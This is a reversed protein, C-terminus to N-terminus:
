ANAAEKAELAAHFESMRVREWMRVQVYDSRTDGVVATAKLEYPWVLWVAGDIEHLAPTDFASGNWRHAPMGPLDTRVDAPPKAEDIRRAIAKGAKLGLRPVLRTASGKGQRRWGEPIPDGPKFEVGTIHRHGLTTAVLLDRGVFGLDTLLAATREHWDAMAARYTAVAALVDPHTSRYVTEM